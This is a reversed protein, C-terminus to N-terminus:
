KSIKEIENIAIATNPDETLRRAENFTKWGFEYFEDEFLKKDPTFTESNQPIFFWIDYHTRCPRGAPNSIINTIALLSPKYNGVELDMGWEEAIERKLAQAPTEDKEMHGGSFLWLGAKKHRGIFVLKNEPDYAASYVCFHSIPDDAVSISAKEVRKRFSSKIKDDANATEIIDRLIARL